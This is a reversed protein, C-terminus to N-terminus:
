NIQTVEQHCAVRVEGAVASETRHNTLAITYLRGLYLHLHNGLAVKTRLTHLLDVTMAMHIHGDKICHIVDEILADCWLNLDLQQRIAKSLLSM